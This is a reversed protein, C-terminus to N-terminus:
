GTCIAICVSPKWIVILKFVLHSVILSGSTPSFINIWQDSYFCIVPLKRVLQIFVNSQAVRGLLCSLTSIGEPAFNSFILFLGRAFTAYETEPVTHFLLGLSHELGGSQCALRISELYTADPNGALVCKKFFMHYPSGEVILSPSKLFYRTSM